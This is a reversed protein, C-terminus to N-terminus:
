LTVKRPKLIWLANLTICYIGTLEMLWNLKLGFFDTGILKDMHHFSTARILIFFVLFIMGAFALWNRRLIQNFFRLGWSILYIGFVFIMIIFFGQVMKRDNYWGQQHAFFKGVATLLSQLDLQKNIGMLFSFLAIWLWFLCQKNHPSRILKQAHQYVRFALFAALFYSFVTFWGAFTPDGIQPRWDINSM